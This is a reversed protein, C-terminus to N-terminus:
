KWQSVVTIFLLGRLIYTWGVYFAFSFNRLKVSHQKEKQHLNERKSQPYQFIVCFPANFYYSCWIFVCKHKLIFSNTPHVIKYLLTLQNIIDINSKRYLLTLLSVEQLSRYVNEMFEQKWFNTPKILIIDSPISM